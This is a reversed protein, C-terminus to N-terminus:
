RASDRLRGIAEAALPLLGAGGERLHDLIRRRLRPEWFAALHEAVGAVAEEHPYAAFFAATQNASQVLKAVDM